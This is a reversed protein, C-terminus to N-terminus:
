IGNNQERPIIKVTTTVRKKYIREGQANDIVYLVNVIAHVNIQAEVLVADRSSV